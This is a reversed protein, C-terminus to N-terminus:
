GRAIFIIMMMIITILLLLIMIIMILIIIITIMIIIIMIIIIMMMIIIIIIIIMIIRIMLIMSTSYQGLMNYLSQPAYHSPRRKIAKMYIDVAEELRDQDALLRGLNYLASIKTSEHLRPDKLGSHDIEACHLYIQFFM